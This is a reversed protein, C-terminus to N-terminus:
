FDMVNHGATLTTRMIHLIEGGQAPPVVVDGDVVPSIADVGGAWGLAPADDWGVM